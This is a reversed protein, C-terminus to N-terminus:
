PVVEILAHMGQKFHDAGSGHGVHCSLDFRLPFGDAVTRFNPAIEIEVRGNPSVSFVKEEPASFLPSIVQHPTSTTNEFVLKYQKGNTLRLIVQPEDTSDSRGEPGEFFFNGLHIVVVEAEEEEGSPPPPQHYPAYGWEGLLIVAALALVGVRELLVARKHGTKM